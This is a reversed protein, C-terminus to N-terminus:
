GAIIAQMLNTQNTQNLKFKLKIGGDFKFSFEIMLGVFAAM